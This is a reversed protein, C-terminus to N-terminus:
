QGLQELSPHGRRILWDDIAEALLDTIRRDEELGIEKLLRIARPPLYATVSPYKVMRTSATTAPSAAPQSAPAEIANAPEGIIAGTAAPIAQQATALDALSRRHAKPAAKAQPANSAM